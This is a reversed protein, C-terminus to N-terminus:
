KVEDFDFRVTVRYLGDTGVSYEFQDDSLSVIVHSINKFLTTEGANSAVRVGYPLRIKAEGFVNSDINDNVVQVLDGNSYGSSSFILYEGKLFVNSRDSSFGEILITKDGVTTATRLRM